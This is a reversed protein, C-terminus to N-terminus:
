ARRRQRAAEYMLVSTAVAANLSEVKGLMPIKLYADALDATERKLGNGENGILFATKGTFDLSAYDRSEELHAAYVRVGAAQLTQVSEKISDVYLFPVRYISGMTARITKPNYIDVSERTLIVGTIGAGEGTRMITGLNGPDQLDELLVWLPIKQLHTGEIYTHKGEDVAEEKGSRDLLQELSYHYQEIVCLIGQPTKTDSIKGFVEDSVSEYGCQKIKRYLEDSKNLGSLFSESVYVERIKSVPAELFMKRGEVVFIDAERRAKAKQNYQVLRKIRSNNVATIM